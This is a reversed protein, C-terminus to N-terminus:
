APEVSLYPAEYFMNLDEDVLPTPTGGWGGFTPEIRFGEFGLPLGAQAAGPGDWWIDPYDFTLVDDEWIKLIGDGVDYASQAAVYISIKHVLTDQPNVVYNAPAVNRGLSSRQPSTPLWEVKTGIPWTNVLNTQLQLAPVTPNVTYSVRVIETGIQLKDGRKFTTSGATSVQILSVGATAQATLATLPPSRTPFAVPAGIAYNGVLPGSLVITGQGNSGTASVVTFTEANGVRVTAGTLGSIVRDISISTQGATGALRLTANPTTRGQTELSEFTAQTNFNLRLGQSYGQADRNYPILEIIPGNSSSAPNTQLAWLFKNQVCNNAFRPIGPLRFSPAIQPNATRGALTRVTGEGPAASEFRQEFFVRKAPAAFQYALAFPATGGPHGVPTTSELTKNGLMGGRTNVLLANGSGLSRRNYYQGPVQNNSTPLPDPLVNNLETSLGGPENPRNASPVVVTVQRTGQLSAGVDTVTITVPGGAAVGACLGGPTTISAVGPNSSSYSYTRNTMVQGFQDKTQATFQVSGGTNITQNSGPLLTVTTPVPPLPNGGGSVTSDFFDSFGFPGTATIRVSGGTLPTFLGNVVTAVAPDSSTWITTPNASAARGSGRSYVVTLQVPPDSVDITPVKVPITL